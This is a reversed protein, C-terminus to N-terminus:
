LSDRARLGLRRTVVLAHCRAVGTAAPCVPPSPSAPRQRPQATRSQAQRSLWSRSRRVCGSSGCACTEKLRRASLRLWGGTGRVKSGAWYDFTVAPRGSSHDARDYGRPVNHRGRIHCARRRHQQVSEASGLKAKGTFSATDGTGIKTNSTPMAGLPSGQGVRRHDHSGTITRSACDESSATVPGAQGNTNVTFQHQEAASISRSGSTSTQTASGVQVSASPATGGRRDPTAAARASGSDRRSRQGRPRRTGPAAFGFVLPRSPARPM